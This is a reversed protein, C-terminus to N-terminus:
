RGPTERFQAGAQGLAGVLECRALRALRREAPQERLVLKAVEARLLLGLAPRSYQQGGLGRADVLRHAKGLSGREDAVQDVGRGGVQPGGLQLSGDPGLRLAEAGLHSDGRAVLQRLAIRQDGGDAAGRRGLTSGPQDLEFPALRLM